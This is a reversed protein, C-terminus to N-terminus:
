KGWVQRLAELLARKRDENTNDHFTKAHERTGNNYVHIIWGIGKREKASMPSHFNVDILRAQAKGVVLWLEADPKESDANTRPKSIKTTATAPMRERPDPATNPTNREIKPRQRMPKM